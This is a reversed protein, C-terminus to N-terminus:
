RARRWLEALDPPLRAEVADADEPALALRTAGLVAHLYFAARAPPHQMLRAAAVLYDGAGSPPDLRANLNLEGERVERELPYPLRALISELPPGDLAVRLPCLAALIVKQHDVESGLRASIVALLDGDPRVEIWDTRGDLEAPAVTGPVPGGHGGSVAYADTM